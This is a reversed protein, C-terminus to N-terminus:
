IHILSLLYQNEEKLLENILLLAGEKGSQENGHQQAFILVRIKSEDEGFKGKSFYVAFLERGEPSKTLVEAKVLDSNSDIERIFESLESHSTLKTFNSKELPTQQAFAIEIVLLFIIIIHKMKIRPLPLAQEERKNIITKDNM